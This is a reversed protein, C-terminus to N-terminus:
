ADRRQRLDAEGLPIRPAVLGLPFGRWRPVKVPAQLAAAEYGRGKQAQDGGLAVDGRRARESGAIMVLGSARAVGRVEVGGDLGALQRRDGRDIVLRLRSLRGLGIRVLVSGTNRRWVSIHNVGSHRALTM